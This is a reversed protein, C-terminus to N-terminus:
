SGIIFLSYQKNFLIISANMSLGSTVNYNCFSLIFVMELHLTTLMPLVNALVHKM